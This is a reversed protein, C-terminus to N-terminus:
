DKKIRSYKERIKELRQATVAPNWGCTECKKRDSCWVAGNGYLRPDKPLYFICDRPHAGKKTVTPAEGDDDGDDGVPYGNREADEIWPANRIQVM